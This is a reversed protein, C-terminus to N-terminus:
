TTPNAQKIVTVVAVAVGADHSISLSVSCWSQKRSEEAASRHFRLTPSGSSSSRVEIDQWSMNKVSTNLTKYAAEKAAFRAALSSPRGACIELEHPTFCRDTFRTGWRKLMQEIREINVIDVGVSISLNSEPFDAIDEIKNMPLRSFQALLFERNKIAM